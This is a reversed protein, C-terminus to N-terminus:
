ARSGARRARVRSPRGAASTKRTAPARARARSRSGRRWRVAEERRRRPRPRCASRAREARGARERAAAVQELGVLSPVHGLPRNAPRERRRRDDVLGCEGAALVRRRVIEARQQHRQHQGRRCVAGGQPEADGRALRPDRQPQQHMRAIGPENSRRDGNGTPWLAPQSGSMWCSAASTNVGCPVSTATNM